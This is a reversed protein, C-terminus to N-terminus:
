GLIEQRVSQEDVLAKVVVPKPPVRMFDIFM